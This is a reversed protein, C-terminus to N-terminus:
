FCGVAASMRPAQGLLARRTWRLGLRAPTLTRRAPPPQASPLAPLRARGDAAAPVGVADVHRAPCAHRAHWKFLVGASWGGGESQVVHPEIAGPHAAAHEATGPVHSKLGAPSIGVDTGSRAGKRPDAPDADAQTGAIWRVPPFHEFVGAPGSPSAHENLDRALVARAQPARTHWPM